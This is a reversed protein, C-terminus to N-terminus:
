GHPSIYSDQTTLPDTHSISSNILFENEISKQCHGKDIRDLIKCLVCGWREGRLQARASRSSLTENRNGGVSTNFTEDKMIAIQVFRESSSFMAFFAWILSFIDAFIVVIWICFKVLFPM